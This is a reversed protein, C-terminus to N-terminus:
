KEEFETTPKLIYEYRFKDNRNYVRFIRVDFQKGDLTKLTLRASVEPDKGSLPHSELAEEDVNIKKGFIVITKKGHLIAKYYQLGAENLEQESKEPFFLKMKKSFQRASWERTMGADIKQISEKRTMGYRGTLFEKIASEDEFREKQLYLSLEPINVNASEFRGGRGEGEPPFEIKEEGPKEM